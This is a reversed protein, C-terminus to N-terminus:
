PCRSVIRAWTWGFVLRAVDEDMDVDRIQLLFQEFAREMPLRADAAIAYIKRMQLWRFAFQERPCGHREAMGSWYRYEVDLDWTKIADPTFIAPM